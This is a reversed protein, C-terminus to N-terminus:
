TAAYTELVARALTIASDVTLSVVPRDDAYIVIADEYIDAETVQAVPAPALPVAVNALPVGFRCAGSPVPAPATM